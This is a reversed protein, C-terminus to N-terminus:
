RPIRKQATITQCLKEGRCVEQLRLGSSLHKSSDKVKPSIVPFNDIQAAVENSGCSEREEGGVDFFNKRMVSSQISMTPELQGSVHDEVSSSGPLRTAM